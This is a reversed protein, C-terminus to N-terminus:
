VAKMKQESAYYKPVPATRINISELLQFDEILKSRFIEGRPTLEEEVSEGVPRGADIQTSPTENLVTSSTQKAENPLTSSTKRVETLTKRVETPIAITDKRKYRSMFNQLATDDDKKAEKADERKFRNIFAQLASDEKDEDGSTNGGGDNPNEM